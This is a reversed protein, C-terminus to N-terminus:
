PLCLAGEHGGQKLCFELVYLGGETPLMEWSNECHVAPPAIAGRFLVRSVETWNGKSRGVHAKERKLKTQLRETYCTIAM